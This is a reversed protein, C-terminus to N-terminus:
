WLRAAFSGWLGFRIPLSSGIPRLGLSSSLPSPLSNLPCVEMGFILGTSPRWIKQQRVGDVPWIKGVRPNITIQCGIWDKIQLLVFQSIILLIIQSFILSQVNFVWREKVLVYSNSGRVIRFPPSTTENSDTTLHRWRSNSSTVLPQFRSNEHGHHDDAGSTFVLTASSSVVCRNIRISAPFLNFFTQLHDGM